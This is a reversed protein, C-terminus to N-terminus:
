KAYARLLAPCPSSWATTKASPGGCSRTPATRSWLTPAKTGSINTCRRTGWRATTWMLRGRWTRSRGSLRSVSRRAATVSPVKSQWRKLIRQVSSWRNAQDRTQCAAASNLCLSRREPVLPDFALWTSACLRLKEMPEKPSALHLQSVSIKM